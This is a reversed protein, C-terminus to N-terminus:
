RLNRTGKKPWPSAVKGEKQLSKIWDQAIHHPVEYHKAVKAISGLRWYTVGFDSPMGHNKAREKRVPGPNGVPARAQDAVATSPPETRPGVDSPLQNRSAFERDDVRFDPKPDMAGSLMVATRVLLSFDISGLQLPIVTSAGVETRIETILAQDDIVEVTAAAVVESQDSAAISITYLNGM